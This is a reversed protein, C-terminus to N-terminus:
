YGTIDPFIKQASVVRLNHAFAGEHERRRDPSPTTIESSPFASAIREAIPCVRM